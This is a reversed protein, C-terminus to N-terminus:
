VAAGTADVWEMTVNYLWASVKTTDYALNCFFIYPYVAPDPAKIALNDAMKTEAILLEDADEYATNNTKRFAAKFTRSTHYSTKYIYNEGQTLTNAENVGYYVDDVVNKQISQKTIVASGQLVKLFLPKALTEDYYQFGADSAYLEASTPRSATAGKGLAATFNNNDVWKEGNFVAYKGISEFFVWEGVRNAKATLTNIGTYLASTYGAPLTILNDAVSCNKATSSANFLKQNSGITLRNHSIIADKAGDLDFISRNGTLTMTNNIIRVNEGIIKFPFYTANINVVNDEFLLNDTFAFGDETLTINNGIIQSTALSQAFHSVNITNKYFDVGGLRSSFYTSSTIRNNSFVGTSSTFAIPKDYDLVCNEVSFNEASSFYLSYSSAGNRSKIKSNSIVSNNTKGLYIPAYSTSEMDIDANIVCVDYIGGGAQNSAIIGSYCETIVCNEILVNKVIENTNNPEIDVAARPLKYLINDFKCNKVIFNKGSILTIGNRGVGDFVSNEILINESAAVYIGDGTTNKITTSVRVNKSNYIHIGMGYETTHASERTGLILGGFISVNEANKVGFVSYTEGVSTSKTITASLFLKTNSAVNLGDFDAPFVTLDETIYIDTVRDDNMALINNLTDDNTEFWSSRIVSNKWTGAIKVGNGFMKEDTDKIFSGNGTITGDKVSGGDFELVCGAPLTITQGNLDYDYQIHYITNATNVMAQTLVNKGVGELTVLNKRLYVRGLGSYLASNYAKDKFKLVDTNGQKESTLDEEDPANTVDGTIEIPQIDAVAKNVEEVIYPRTSDDLYKLELATAATRGDGVIYRDFNGQGNATMSNDYSVLIYEGAAPTGSSSLSQLNCRKPKAASSVIQGM